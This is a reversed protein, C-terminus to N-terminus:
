WSFNPKKECRGSASTLLCAHLQHLAPSRHGASRVAEQYKTNRIAPPSQVAPIHSRSGFRLFSRCIKNEYQTPISAAPATPPLTQLDTPGRRNSWAARTIEFEFEDLKLPNCNSHRAFGVAPCQLPGHYAQLILSNCVQPQCANRMYSLLQDIISSFLSFITSVLGTSFQM